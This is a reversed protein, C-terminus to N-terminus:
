KKKLIKLKGAIPKKGEEKSSSISFSVDMGVKITSAAPHHAPMTFYITRGEAYTIFGNVGRENQHLIKYIRGQLRDSDASQNAPVFSKWFATLDRLLDDITANTRLYDRCSLMAQTIRDPIRWGQNQRILYSLQFHLAAREHDGEQMLMCGMQYLLGIKYELDGHMTMASAAMPIAESLVGTEFLLEAIEKRIFWENKRSLIMRMEFIAQEYNGQAKLCLAMRRALWADNNYHFKEVAALGEKVAQLCEHVKGLKLL